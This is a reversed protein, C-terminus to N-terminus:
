AIISSGVDRINDVMFNDARREVSANVAAGTQPAAITALCSDSSVGSRYRQELGLKLLSQLPHAQSLRSSKTVAWPYPPGGQQINRIGGM